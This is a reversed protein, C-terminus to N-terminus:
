PNEKEAYKNFEYFHEKSFRLRLEREDKKKPYLTLIVDDRREGIMVKDTLYGSKLDIGSLQKHHYSCVVVLNGRVDRTPDKEFPELHHHQLAREANKRVECPCQGEVNEVECDECFLVCVQCFNQAQERVWDREEEYNIAHPTPTSTGRYRPASINPRKPKQKRELQKPMSLGDDEKSPPTTPTPRPEKDREKKGEGVEEPPAEIAEEEEVVYEEEREEVAEEEAGVDRATKESSRRRHPSIGVIESYRFYQSMSMIWEVRKIDIDPSILSTLLACLLLLHENNKEDFSTDLYLVKKRRHDTGLCCFDDIPNGIIREGNHHIGYSVGLGSVRQVNTRELVDIDPLGDDGLARYGYGNIWPISEALKEEWEPWPRSENEDARNQLIFEYIEKVGISLYYREKQAVNEFIFPVDVIGSREIRDKYVRDTEQILYCETPRRM